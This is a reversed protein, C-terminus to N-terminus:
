DLRHLKDITKPVEIRATSTYLGIGTAQCLRVNGVCSLIVAAENISIGLRENLFDAMHKSAKVIAEGLTEGTAVTAWTDAREIIPGPIQVGKKINTVKLYVDASVELGMGFESDCQRAHCDGVLLLGGKVFVPLHLKSGIGMTPSDFNGGHVGSRGTPLPVIPTTGITGIMPKIPFSIDGDFIATDDTIKIIKTYPTTYERLIGDGPLICIFGDGKCQIDIIEIEVTDGVEAGNIYIPGTCPNVHDLDVGNELVDADSTVNGDQSDQAEVVFIEGVEVELVPKNNKDFNYVKKNRSVRKM